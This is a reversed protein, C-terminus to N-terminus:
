SCNCGGNRALKVFCVPCTPDKKKYGGTINKAWWLEALMDVPPRNKDYPFNGIAQQAHMAHLTPPRM